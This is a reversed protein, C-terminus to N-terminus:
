DIGDEEEVVATPMQGDPAQDRDTRLLDFLARALSIQRGRLPDPADAAPNRKAIGVAWFGGDVSLLALTFNDQERVCGMLASLSFPATLRRRQLLSRLYGFDELSLRRSHLLHQTPVSPRASEVFEQLEQFSEVQCPAALLKNFGHNM